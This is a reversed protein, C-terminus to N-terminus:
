RDNTGGRLANLIIEASTADNKDLVEVYISKCDVLPCKLSCPRCYQCFYCNNIWHLNREKCFDKKFEVLNFDGDASVKCKEVIEQWMQIALKRERTMRRGGRSTRAM